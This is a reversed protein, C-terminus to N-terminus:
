DCSYVYDIQLKFMFLRYPQMKGAYKQEFKVPVVLSRLFVYFHYVNEPVVEISKM